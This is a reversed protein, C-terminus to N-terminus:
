FRRTQRLGHTELWKAMFLFTMPYLKFFSAYLNHLIGVSAVLHWLPPFLVHVSRSEFGAWLSSVSYRCKYLYLGNIVLRNIPFYLM